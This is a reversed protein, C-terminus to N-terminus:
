RKHKGKYLSVTCRRNVSGMESPLFMDRGVTGIPTIGDMHEAYTHWVNPRIHHKGTYPIHKHLETILLSTAVDDHTLFM